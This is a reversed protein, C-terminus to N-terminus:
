DMYERQYSTGKIKMQNISCNIADQSSIGCTICEQDSSGVYNCLNEKERVEKIMQFNRSIESPSARGLSQNLNMM